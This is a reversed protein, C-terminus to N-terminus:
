HRNPCCGYVSLSGPKLALCWISKNRIIAVMTATVIPPQQQQQTAGGAGPSGRVRVVVSKPLGTGTVMM